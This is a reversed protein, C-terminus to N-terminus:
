NRRPNKEAGGVAKGQGYFFLYKCLSAMRVYRLGISEADRTQSSALPGNWLHVISRRPLAIV